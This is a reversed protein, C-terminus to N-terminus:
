MVVYYEIGHIICIIDYQLNQQHLKCQTLAYLFPSYERTKMHTFKCTANYVSHLQDEM